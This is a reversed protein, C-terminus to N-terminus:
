DTDVPLGHHHDARAYATSTGVGPAEGFSDPGTVTTAPSAAGATMAVVWPDDVGSGVFLVLCRTGAPPASVVWAPLVAPNPLAYVSSFAPVMVTAQTTTASVIVGEQPGDFSVTTPRHRLIVSQLLAATADHQM